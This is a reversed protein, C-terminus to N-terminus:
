NASSFLRVTSISLASDWLCREKHYGPVVQWRSSDAETLVSYTTRWRASRSFDGSNLWPIARNAFCCDCIFNCRYYRTLDQTSLIFGYITYSFQPQIKCVATSFSSGIQQLFPPGKEQGKYVEVGRMQFVHESFHSDVLCPEHALFRAEADGKWYAFAGKMALLTGALRGRKRGFSSRRSRQHPPDRGEAFALGMGASTLGRGKYSKHHLLQNIWCLLSPKVLSRWICSAHELEM